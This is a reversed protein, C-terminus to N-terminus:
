REIKIWFKDEAMRGSTKEIILIPDYFPIGLRDLELKMKDRTRPFCRSELFAEYEEYSPAPNTGFARLLTNDTYNRVLVKRSLEDVDIVSCVMSEYYYWLRLKLANGPVRLQEELEPKRKLIELLPIIPGTIPGGKQEWTEVTRKSCCAFAAFEKQTMGLQERLNRVDEGTLNRNIVYATSM